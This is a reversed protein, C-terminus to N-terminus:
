RQQTPNMNKQDLLYKLAQQVNRIVFKHGQLYTKWKQVAVIVALFEREYISLAQNKVGLAKSLFVIPKQNANTELVFPKYFNPLALMPATTMAHKLTQFAM